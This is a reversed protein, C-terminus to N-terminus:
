DKTRPKVIIHSSHVSPYFGSLGSWSMGNDARPMNVRITASIPETICYPCKLLVNNKYLSNEKFVNFEDDSLNIMKQCSSCLYRVM